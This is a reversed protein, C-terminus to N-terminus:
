LKAQSCKANLIGICHSCMISYMAHDTGAYLTGRAHLDRWVACASAPRLKTPQIHKRAM